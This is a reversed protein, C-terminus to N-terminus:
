NPVAGRNQSPQSAAEDELDTQSTLVYGSIYASARDLVLSIFLCSDGTYSSCKLAYGHLM